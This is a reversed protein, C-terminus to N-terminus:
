LFEQNLKLFVFTTFLSLSIRRHKLFFIHNNNNLLKNRIYIREINIYITLNVNLFSFVVLTISYYSLSTLFLCTFFFALFFFFHYIILYYVRKKIFQSRSYM